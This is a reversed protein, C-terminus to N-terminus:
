VTSTTAHISRQGEQPEQRRWDRDALVRDRSEEHLSTVAWLTTMMESVRVMPDLERSIRIMLPCLHDFMEEYRDNGCRGQQLEGRVQDQHTKDLKKWTDVMLQHRQGMWRRYGDDSITGGWGNRAEDQGTSQSQRDDDRRTYPAMGDLNSTDDRRQRQTMTCPLRRHMCRAATLVPPVHTPDRVQVWTLCKGRLLMLRTPHHYPSRYQPVAHPDDHAQKM